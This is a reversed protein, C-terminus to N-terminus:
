ARNGKRDAAIHDSYGDRNKYLSTDMGHDLRAAKRRDQRKSEAITRSLTLADCAKGKRIQLSTTM